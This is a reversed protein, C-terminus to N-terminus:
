GRLKSMAKRRLRRSLKRWGVHARPHISSAQCSRASARIQRIRDDITTLAFTQATLPMERRLDDDTKLLCYPSRPDDMHEQYLFPFYWGQVFGASALRGCYQTFTEDPRLPGLADVCARKMLFGSGEIWNNQLLRHGGPFERIKQSALEPLFDEERFRWCGLVGFEPVDEHAKVLTRTWEVPVLCDDDVKSVYTADSALWLWNTPERLKKNEISHHFRYINPHTLFSRVLALTEEHEGNHWLWVRMREDCTSLLRELALRTYYPRNHTIMLIDIMDANASTADRQEAPSM